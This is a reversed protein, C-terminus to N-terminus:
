SVIFDEDDDIDTKKLILYIAFCTIAAIVLGKILKKRKQRKSVFNEFAETNTPDYEVYSM